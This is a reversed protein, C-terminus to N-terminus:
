TRPATSRSVLLVRHFMLSSRFVFTIAANPLKFLSFNSLRTPSESTTQLGHNFSIAIEKFLILKHYIFINDRSEPQYRDYVLTNKNPCLKFSLTGIVRYLVVTVMRILTLASMSFVWIRVDSSLLFLLTTCYTRGVNLVPTLKM